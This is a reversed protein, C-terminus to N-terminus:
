SPAVPTAGRARPILTIVSRQSPPPRGEFQRDCPGTTGILRAPLREVDAVHQAASSDRAAAVGVPRSRGRATFGRAVRHRDEEM